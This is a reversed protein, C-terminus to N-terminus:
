KFFRNLIAEIKIDLKCCYLTYLFLIFSVMLFCDSLDLVYFMKYLSEGTEEFRYKLAEPIETQTSNEGLKISLYNVKM